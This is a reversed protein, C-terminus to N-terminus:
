LFDLGCLCLLERDGTVTLSAGVRDALLRLRAVADVVALDPSDVVLTVPTGARLLREVERRARACGAASRLTVVTVCTQRRSLAPKM